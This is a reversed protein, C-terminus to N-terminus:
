PNQQNQQNPLFQQNQHLGMITQFYQMLQRVIVISEQMPEAAHDAINIMYAIGENDLLNTLPEYESEPGFKLAPMAWYDVGFKVTKLQMPITQNTHACTMSGSVLENLQQTFQDITAEDAYNRRARAM